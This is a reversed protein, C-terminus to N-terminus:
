ATRGKTQRLITEYLAITQRAQQRLSFQKVVREHAAAGMAVAREPNQLLEILRKALADPDGRPVIYGTKGDEVIEPTGGVNTAVVPLSAAGAEILVTPLAESWSPLILVHSANLLQPVDMRQGLFEITDGFPAAQKRLDAELEGDGVLKIQVNPVAAKIQPVAQFLVDHGKGARLVGVMIVTPRSSDWGVDPRKGGMEFREIEIGNYITQIKTLPIGAQKSFLQRVAESVAVIRDAGYRASWLVLRARLATKLSPAPEQLVHRTMVVPVKHRMHMAAGYINTDQDQAHIVDFPEAKQLAVFRKWAGNDIMRKADLDIRRIGTKEFAQTLLSDRRHNLTCLVPTVGEAQFYPLVSVLVRESGGMAVSSMMFLVRM